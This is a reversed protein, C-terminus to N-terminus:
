AIKRTADHPPHYHRSVGQTQLREDRHVRVATDVPLFVRIASSVSALSKQLRTSLLPSLGACINLCPPAHFVSVHRSTPSATRSTASPRMVSPREFPSVMASNDLLRASHTCASKAMKLTPPM